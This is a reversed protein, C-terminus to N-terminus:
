LRFRAQCCMYHFSFNFYQSCVLFRFFNHTNREYETCKPVEITIDNLPFTWTQQPTRFRLNGSDTRTQHGGSTCMKWVSGDRIHLLKNRHKKKIVLPLLQIHPPEEFVLLQTASELQSAVRIYVYIYKYVCVPSCRNNLRKKVLYPIM